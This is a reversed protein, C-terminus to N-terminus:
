GDLAYRKVRLAYLTVSGAWKIQISIYNIWVPLLFRELLFVKIDMM